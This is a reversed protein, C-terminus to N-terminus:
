PVNGSAGGFLFITVAASKATNCTVVVYNTYFYHAWSTNDYNLIFYVFNLYTDFDKQLENEIKVLFKTIGFPLM